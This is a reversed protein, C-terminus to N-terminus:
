CHDALNLARDYRDIQWIYWYRGITLALTPNKYCLVLFPLGVPKVGLDGWVVINKNYSQWGVLRIVINTCEGLNKNLFHNIGFNPPSWPTVM